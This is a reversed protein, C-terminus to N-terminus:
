NWFLFNRGFPSSSPRLLLLLVRRSPPSCFYIHLPFHFTVPFDNITLAADLAHTTHIRIFTGGYFLRETLGGCVFRWVAILTMIQCKVVAMHARTHPHLPQPIYKDLTRNEKCENVHWLLIRRELPRGRGSACEKDARRSRTRGTVNNVTIYTSRFIWRWWNGM